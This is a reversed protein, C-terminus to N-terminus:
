FIWHHLVITDGGDVDRVVLYLDVGEMYTSGFGPTAVMICKSFDRPRWQRPTSDLLRQLKPHTPSAPELTNRESIRDLLPSDKRIQWVSEDEFFSGLGYVRVDDRLNKDDGILDQLAPPWDDPNLHGLRNHKRWLSGVYTVAGIPLAIM